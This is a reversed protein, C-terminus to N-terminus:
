KALEYVDLHPDETDWEPLWVGHEDVWYYIYGGPGYPKDSKVYASTAMAGSATLYYSKGDDVIWQSSCMAGDGAMYYWDSLSKFWGKVMCGAGDFAYWRGGDYIWENAAYNGDEKLYKWVDGDQVWGSVYDHACVCATYACWSVFMQCWQAPNLGYWEGYKTYNARGPNAAPENLGDKSAKECYGVQSRAVAILQEATCTEAEFRPTGFGSIRNKGGIQNPTVDYTKIAVEGGDRDYVTGSTNGEITVIYYLGNRYEVSAVIGVHGIRGLSSNYFYIIDGAHPVTGWRGAKKFYGSGTPTYSTYDGCLLYQGRQYDNM